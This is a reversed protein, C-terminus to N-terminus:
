KRLEELKAEILKFYGDVDSEAGKPQTYRHVSGDEERCFYGLDEGDLNIHYKDAEKVVIVHALKEKILMDFIIKEGDIESEKITVPIEIKDTEKM